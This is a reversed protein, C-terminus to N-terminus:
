LRSRLRNQCHTGSVEINETDGEPRQVSGQWSVVGDTKTYNSTTPVPPEAIDQRLKIGSLQLDSGNVQEFLHHTVSHERDNSILSGLSIFLRVVDPVGNKQRSELLSVM